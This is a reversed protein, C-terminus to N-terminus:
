IYQYIEWTQINDYLKGKINELLQNQLEKPVGARSMSSLVKEENFPEQTGDAKIVNAM